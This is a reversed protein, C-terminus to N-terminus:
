VPQAERKNGSRAPKSNIANGFINAPLTGKLGAEFIHYPHFCNHCLVLSQQTKIVKPAFLRYM